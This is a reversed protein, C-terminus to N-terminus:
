EAHQDHEARGQEPEPDSQPDGCASSMEQSRYNRGVPVKGDLAEVTAVLAFLQCTPTDLAEDMPFRLRHVAHALLRTSLGFLDVCDADGAKADPDRMRLATSFGQGIVQLVAETLDDFASPPFRLGSIGSLIEAAQTVAALRLEPDEPVDFSLLPNGAAELKMWRQITFPQLTVVGEVWVPTVHFADLVLRPTM